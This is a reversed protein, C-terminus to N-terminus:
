YRNPQLLFVALDAAVTGFHALDSESAVLSFEDILLSTPRVPARSSQVANLFLEKTLRFMFGALEPEALANVSVVCIKGELVISSLDFKVSKQGSLCREAQPSVLPKLLLLLCSQLNTKTKSDLVAWLKVQDIAAGLM